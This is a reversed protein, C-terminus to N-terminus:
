QQAQPPAPARLATGESAGRESAPTAIVEEAVLAQALPTLQVFLQPGHEGLAEAHAGRREAVFAVRLAHMARHERAEDRLDTESGLVAVVARCATAAEGDERAGRKRPSGRVPDHRRLDDLRRATETAGQCADLAVPHLADRRVQHLPDAALRMPDPGGPLHGRPLAHLEAFQGDNRTAAHRPPRHSGLVRAVDEDLRRQDVTVTVQLCREDAVVAVQTGADLGHLGLTAFAPQEDVALRAECEEICAYRRLDVAERGELAPTTPRLGAIRADEEHALGVEQSVLRIGVERRSERIGDRDAATGRRLKAVFQRGAGRTVTDVRANREAVQVGRRGLAKFPQHRAQDRLLDLCQDARERLRHADTEEREAFHRLGRRLGNGEADAGHDIRHGRM